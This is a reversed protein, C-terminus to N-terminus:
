EDADGSGNDAEGNPCVDETRTEVSTTISKVRKPGETEYGQVVIQVNQQQVDATTAQRLGELDCRLEITRHIRDYVRAAMELQDATLYKEFAGDLKLQYATLTEIERARLLNAYEKLETDWQRMIIKVDQSVTVESAGVMRAIDKQRHGKVMLRAIEHRRKAVAPTAGAIRPKRQARSSPEKPIPTKPNKM